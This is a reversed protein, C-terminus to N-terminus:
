SARETLEHTLVCECKGRLLMRAGQLQQEPGSASAILVIAGEAVDKLLQSYVPSPVQGDESGSPSRASAAGQEMARLLISLSQPLGQSEKSEFNGDPRPVFVDIFGGNRGHIANRVDDARHNALVLLEGSAFNSAHLDGITAALDLPNRFVAVVFWYRNVDDTMEYSSKGDGGAELEINLKHRSRRMRTQQPRDFRISSPDSDVAVDIRIV